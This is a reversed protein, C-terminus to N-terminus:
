ANPGCNTEMEGCMICSRKRPSGISRNARSGTVGPHHDEEGVAVWKGVKTAECRLGEHGESQVVAIDTRLAAACRGERETCKRM